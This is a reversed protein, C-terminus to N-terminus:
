RSRGSRITSGSPKTTSGSPKTGSQTGGSKKVPPQFKPPSTTSGSTSKTPQRVPATTPQKISSPTTKVGAKPTVKLRPPTFPHSKKPDKGNYFSKGKKTKFEKQVQDGSYPKGNSGRWRVNKSGAPGKYYDIRSKYKGEWSHFTSRYHNMRARHIYRDYYM